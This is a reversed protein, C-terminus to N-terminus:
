DSDPATRARERMGQERKQERQPRHTQPPALSPPLSLSSPLGRFISQAQQVAASQPTPPAEEMTNGLAQVRGRM